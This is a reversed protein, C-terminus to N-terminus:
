KQKKPPPKDPTFAGPPTNNATPTASKGCSAAPTASPSATQRSTKPSSAARALSATTVLASAPCSLLMAASGSTTASPLRRPTSGPKTVCPPTCRTISPTYLAVNPAFLVNDGITVAGGDLITCGSNAYFNRGFRIGEGYDCHFPPTIHIGDPLAGLLETLLAQQATRDDPSIQTNYRWLLRRCRERRAKLDPDYPLHPAGSRMAGWAASM